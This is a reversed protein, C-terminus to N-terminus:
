EWKPFAPAYEGRDVVVVITGRQGNYSVVDGVHIESGDEYRQDM